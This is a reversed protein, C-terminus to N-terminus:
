LNKIKQELDKIGEDKAKQDIKKLLNLRKVQIQSLKNYYQKFLSAIKIKKDNTDM